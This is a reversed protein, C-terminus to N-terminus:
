VHARTAGPPAPAPQTRPLPQPRVVDRLFAPAPAAPEVPEVPNGEPNAAVPEATPAPPPLSKLVFIGGLLLLTLGGMVFIWRPVRASALSERRCVVCM